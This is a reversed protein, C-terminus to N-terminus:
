LHAQQVPNGLYSQSGWAAAGRAGQPGPLCGVRFAWSSRSPASLLLHECFWAGRLGPVVPGWPAAGSLPVLQLLWLLPWPTATPYPRCPGQLRSGRCPLGPCRRICVCLSVASHAARACPVSGQHSGARSVHSFCPPAGSFAGVAGWCTCQLSAGAAGSSHSERTCRREPSWSM